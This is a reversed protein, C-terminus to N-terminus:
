CPIINTTSYLNVNAGGVLLYSSMLGVWWCIVNTRSVQLYSLQEEGPSLGGVILPQRPDFKEVLEYPIGKIEMRVYCGAPFGELQWRLEDTVGEFTSKNLEAQAALKEKMESFYDQESNQEKNDYEENFQAKMKQKKAVLEDQNTEITVDEDSSSQLQLVADDDGWSGTVCLTKLATVQNDSWGMPSRIVCSSDCQHTLTHQNDHHRHLLVGESEVMTHTHSSDNGNAISSDYTSTVSYIFHQLNVKKIKLGKKVLGEKWKTSIMKEEKSGESSSDQDNSKEDSSSRDDDSDQDSATDSEQDSHLEQTDQDNNAGQDYDQDSGLQQEDDVVCCCM